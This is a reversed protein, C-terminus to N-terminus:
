VDVEELHETENKSVTIGAGDLNKRYEAEREKLSEWVIAHARNAPLGKEFLGDMAELPIGKTEPILFWVFVISCLMLAAFFFYVGFGMADFMQPTFRAVLFNWLWNNAAVFAQSLSRVNQDFIESAIVWPTGNWSPTYIAAWLYFFVMASIGGPTLSDSVHESPKAIAIYGGIYWLCISAFFAGILLLNRRGVKDILFFLWVVTM